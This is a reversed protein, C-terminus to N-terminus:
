AAEVDTGATFSTIRSITGYVRGTLGIVIEEDSEGITIQDAAFYVEAYKFGLDTGGTEMLYEVNSTSKNSDAFAPNNNAGDRQTDSETSVLTNSNVQTALADNMAAIWDLINITQADDRLMASFSIEVPEMLKGDPGKVYHALSDMTGRNLVLQEEQRPAGLPGSFDGKDLDLELYWPAGTGDYLRIKADRSTLKTM